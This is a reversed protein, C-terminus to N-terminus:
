DLAFVHLKFDFLLRERVRRILDHRSIRTEPNMWTPLASGAPLSRTAGHPQRLAPAHQLRHFVTSRHLIDTVEAM